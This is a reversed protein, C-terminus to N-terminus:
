ETNETFDVARRQPMGPDPIFSALMQQMGMGSVGSPLLPFGSPTLATRFVAVGTQQSIRAVEGSHMRVSLNRGPLLMSALPSALPGENGSAQTAMAMLFAMPDQMAANGVSRGPAAHHQAAPTVLEEVDEEDVSAGPARSIQEAGLDRAVHSAAAAAPDAEEQQVADSALEQQPTDFGDMTVVPALLQAAEALRQRRESRGDRPHATVEVVSATATASPAVTPVNSPSPDTQGGNQGLPLTESDARQVHGRQQLAGEVPDQQLRAERELQRARLRSAQRGITGRIMNFSRELAELAEGREHQMALSDRVEQRQGLLTMLQRKGRRIKSATARVGNQINGLDADVLALRSALDDVGLADVGESLEAFRQEGAAFEERLPAVARQITDFMQEWADVTGPLDVLRIGYDGEGSLLESLFHGNFFTAIQLTNLTAMLEVVSRRPHDEAEAMAAWTDQIDRYLAFSVHQIPDSPLPVSQDNGLAWLGRIGGILLVATARHRFLAESIESSEEEEGLMATYCEDVLEAGLPANTFDGRMLSVLALLSVVRKMEAPTSDREVTGLRGGGIARLVSTAWQNRFDAWRGSLTMHSPVLFEKFSAWAHHLIEDGTAGRISLPAGDGYPDYVDGATLVESMAITSFRSPAIPRELLLTESTAGLASSSTAGLAPSLGSLASILFFGTLTSIRLNKQSM